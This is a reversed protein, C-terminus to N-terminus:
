YWLNKKLRWSCLSAHRAANYRRMQYCLDQNRNLTEIGSGWFYPRSTSITWNNWRGSLSNATHVDFETFECATRGSSHTYTPLYSRYSDHFAAKWRILQDVPHFVSLRLKGSIIQNGELFWSRSSNPAIAQVELISSSSQGGSPTSTVHPLFLSPM